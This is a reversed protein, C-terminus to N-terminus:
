RKPNNEIWLAARVIAEASQAKLRGAYFSRFNQYYKILNL